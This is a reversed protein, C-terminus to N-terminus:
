IKSKRKLSVERQREHQRPLNGSARRHHEAVTTGPQSFKERAERHVM